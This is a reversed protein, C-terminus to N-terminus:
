RFLASVAPLTPMPPAAAEPEPLPTTLGYEAATRGSKPLEVRGGHAFVRLTAGGSLGLNDLPIRFGHRGDGVGAALLDERFQDAIATAAPAGDVWLEVEPLHTSGLLRVWGTLANGVIEDVQGETQVRAHAIYKPSNPSVAGIMDARVQPTVSLGCFDILSDVCTAPLSLCKEYSLMLVPCDIALVAKLMETYDAAAKELWGQGSVYESVAIRQSIALIDRFTVIMRPNRFKTIDFMDAYEHLAPHKFGWRRHASNRTYIFDLMAVPDKGPLAAHLLSDEFVVEDGIDGMFIGARHLLGAILSTGSRALGTAILTIPAEPEAKFQENNDGVNLAM